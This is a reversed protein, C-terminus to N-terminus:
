QSVASYKTPVGNQPHPGDTTSPLDPAQDKATNDYTIPSTADSTGGSYYGGNCNVTGLSGASNPSALEQYRGSSTTVTTTQDNQQYCKVNTPPKGDATTSPTESDVAPLYQARCQTQCDLNQARQQFYCNNMCSNYTQGAQMANTLGQNKYYNASASQLNGMENVLQQAQADNQPVNIDSPDTDGFAAVAIWLGFIFVVTRTM